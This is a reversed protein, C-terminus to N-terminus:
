WDEQMEAFDTEADTTATVDTMAAEDDDDTGDGEEDSDVGWTVDPVRDEFWGREDSDVSCFKVWLSKLPHESDQRLAVVEKLARGNFESCSDLKLAELIPCAPTETGKLWSFFVDTVGDCANFYLDRLCPAHSLILIYDSDEYSAETFRIKRLSSPKIRDFFRSLCTKVDVNQGPRSLEWDILYLKALNPCSMFTFLFDAIQPDLQSLSLSTLRDLPIPPFMRESVNDNDPFAIEIFELDLDELGPCEKMISYMQYPTPMNRGDRTITSLRLARLDHFTPSNWPLSVKELELDVVGKMIDRLFKGKTAMDAPEMLHGESEEAVLSLNKLPMPIETNTFHIILHLLDAVTNTKAFLSAIRGAHPDVIRLANELNVPDSLLARPDDIDFSLYLDCNGSRIIWDQAREYPPGESFDITTWFNSANLAVVRWQRCVHSFLSAFYPPEKHYQENGYEDVSVDEEDDEIMDDRAEKVVRDDETGITIIHSLIEPPLRRIPCLITSTNRLAQLGVRADHLERELRALRELRQDIHSLGDEISMDVGQSASTVPDEPREESFQNLVKTTKKVYTIAAQDLSDLGDDWARMARMRPNGKPM